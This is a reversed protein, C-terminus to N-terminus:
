GFVKSELVFSGVSVIWRLSDCWIEVSVINARVGEVAFVPLL